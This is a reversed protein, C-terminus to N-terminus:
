FSECMRRKRCCGRAKSEIGDGGEKPVNYVGNKYKGEREREREREIQRERGGISWM